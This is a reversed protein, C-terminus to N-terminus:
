FRKIVEEITHAGYWEKLIEEINPLRPLTTFNMNQGCGLHKQGSFGLAKKIKNLM